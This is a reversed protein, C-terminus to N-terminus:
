RRRRSQKSLRSLVQDTMDVSKAAWVVGESLILDYHDAKALDQIVQIITKQIKDLEENRRINYDERFEEQQRQLERKKDRIDRSLRRAESDSMIAGNKALREELKKIEQRASVLKRQRPAFEQKLRRNALEVQPAKDMVKLANVFGIKLEAAV